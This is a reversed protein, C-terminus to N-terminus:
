SSFTLYLKYSYMNGNNIEKATVNIIQTYLSDTLLTVVFASYVPNYSVTVFENYNDVYISNNDVGPSNESTSIPQGNENVLYTANLLTYQISNPDLQQDVYFNYSGYENQTFENIRLYIVAPTNIAQNILNEKNNTPIKNVIGETNNVFDYIWRAKVYNVGQVGYKNGLNPRYKLGELGYINELNNNLNTNTYINALNKISTASYNSSLNPM